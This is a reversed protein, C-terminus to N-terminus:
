TLGAHATSDSSNRSATNDGRAITEHVLEVGELDGFFLYIKKVDIVLVPYIAELTEQFYLIYIKLKMSCLSIAVLM